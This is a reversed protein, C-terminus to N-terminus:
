FDKDWKAPSRKQAVPIDDTEESTIMSDLSRKTSVGLVLDLDLPKVKPLYPAHIAKSLLLGWDISRFWPHAKLKEFGGAMRSSPNKNLLQNIVVRAETYANHQHPYRLKGTLVVEYIVMPDEEEEAFPVREFLLEYLVIGLSWYDVSVGYGKRLIVEPAMYHPTGVITYTRGSLIKATGFDILKLYGEEDVVVNEPKLDRHVIDREHLHQFIVVLCATFFKSDAESVVSMKRIVDFLDMGSVYELVFYIRKPDKLTKVLKLIFIQDLQLLVKRELTLSEYLEYACIKRRDVTKLAYLVKKSRHIALFVNGYMGKGLLKVISLDQLTLNDDQLEIRKFLQNRLSENIIRLFDVQFLIWCEVEETAIVTATRTQNFIVSREGFYDHKTITRVEHGDIKVIVKGSKVIYFSDGPSGQEVILEGESFKQLKMATILARLNDQSLDRLIQVKQLVKFAENNMSILLFDGGICKEFSEKSIIAIDSSDKCIIDSEYVDESQNIMDRLGLCELKSVVSEGVILEGKLIMVMYESKLTGRPIVIDGQKCDRIEMSNILREAQERSLKNLDENKEIIIAQSNKFIINQLQSGLASALSESDISLCRVATVATCTAIRPSHYLLAQEGFYEGKLFKRVETNQRTCSVVGDKIIFLLDGIDGEKVIVQGSNFNLTRVSGVLAEIQDPKLIAFVSVSEIFAKNEQYNLANIDEIVKKFTSRDLGWLVSSTLTRVTATRPTDHMLALEGFGVGESLTNIRSDNVLVELMGSSVIFFNNGPQNQRFIIQNSAVSYQKMADIIKSKQDHPLTNFIFHREFSSSILSIDRSSKIVDRVQATPADMTPISGRRVEHLPAKQKIKSSRPTYLLPQPSQKKEEEAITPIPQSVIVIKIGDERDKTDKLSCSGM